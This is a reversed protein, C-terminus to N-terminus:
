NVKFVAKNADRSHQQHVQQRLAGTVVMGEGTSTSITLLVAGIRSVLLVLGALLFEIFFETYLVQGITTRNTVRDLTQYRDINSVTNNVVELDQNRLNINFSRFYRFLISVIVLRPINGQPREKKDAQVNLRRVVFLFLVAIAGVYVRLFVLSRFERSIRRRLLSTLVFVLVLFFVAHVPNATTIVQVAARLALRSTIIAMNIIPNEPDPLNSEFWCSRAGLALM